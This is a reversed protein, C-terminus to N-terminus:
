VRADVRIKKSMHNKAFKRFCSDFLRRKGINQHRDNGVWLNKKILLHLFVHKKCSIMGKNIYNVIKLM